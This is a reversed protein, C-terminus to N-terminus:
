HGRSSLASACAIIWAEVMNPREHEWVRLTFMSSREQFRHGPEVEEFVIDDYEVPIIGALLIWSRFLRQRPKWGATIDGAVGPFTM